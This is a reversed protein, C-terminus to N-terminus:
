SHKRKTEIGSFYIRCLNPQLRKRAFERKRYFIRFDIFFFFNVCPSQKFLFLKNASIQNVSLARLKLLKLTIKNKNNFMFYNDFMTFYNLFSM